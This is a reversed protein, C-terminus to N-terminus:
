FQMRGYGSGGFGEGASAGSMTPWDFEGDLSFFGQGGEFITPSVGSLLAAFPDEVLVPQAPTPASQAAPRAQQLQAAMSPHTANHAYGSPPSTIPSPNYSSALSFDTYASLAAAASGTAAISAFSTHPQPAAPRAPAFPPFVPPALTTPRAQQQQQQQQAQHLQQSLAQFSPVAAAGSPVLRPSSPASTAQRRGSIGADWVKRLFAAQRVSPHHPNPAIADLLDAGLQFLRCLKDGPSMPTPALPSSGAAIVTLDSRLLGENALKALFILPYSFMVCTLSDSAWKLTEVVQPDPTLPGPGSKWEVKGGRRRGMDTRLLRGELAVAFMMEEAVEVAKAISEREEAGLTPAIPTKAGDAGAEQSRAALARAKREAKWKNFAFGRVTLRTFCMYPYFLSWAIMDEGGSENSAFSVLPAWYEVWADMEEDFKRLDETELIGAETRASLATAALAVLEVSAALRVDSPQRKLTAFLRTTKCADQPTFNASKGSQIAGHSEHFVCGLYLREQSIIEEPIAQVHQNAFAQAFTTAISPLGIFASVRSVLLRLMWSARVNIKSASEIQAPDSMGRAHLASFQVPKYLILLQVARVFDFSLQDPQPCLIQPALISDLISSVARYLIMTAPTRPRYYLTTVLIAHFLLPSRERVVLPQRDLTTSLLGAWPQINDFFLDFEAECEEVTMIGRGLVDPQVSDWAHGAVGDAAAGNAHDGNRGQASGLDVLGEIAMAEGATEVANAGVGDHQTDNLPAPTVGTMPSSASGAQSAGVHLAHRHAHDVPMSIAPAHPGSTSAPSSLTSARALASELSALRENMLRLQEAVDPALADHVVPQAPPSPAPAPAPPQAPTAHQSTQRVPPTSSRSLSTKSPAPGASSPFVCNVGWTKCRHCPGPPGDCRQKAKHCEACAARSRALRAPKGVARGAAQAGRNGGADSRSSSM